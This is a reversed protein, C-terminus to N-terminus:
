AKRTALHGATLAATDDLHDYGLRGFIERPEGPSFLFFLMVVDAQKTVKYRRTTM